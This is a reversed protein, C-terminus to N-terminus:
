GVGENYVNPGYLLNVCPVELDLEGTSKLETIEAFVKNEREYFISVNKSSSQLSCPSLKLMKYIAVADIYHRNTPEIKVM